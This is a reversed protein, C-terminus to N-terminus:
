LGKRNVTTQQEHEASKKLLEERIEAVPRLPVKCQGDVVPDDYTSENKAEKWFAEGAYSGYTHIGSVTLLDSM